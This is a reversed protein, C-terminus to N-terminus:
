SCDLLLFTLCRCINTPNPSKTLRPFRLSCTSQFWLKNWKGMRNDSNILSYRLTRLLILGQIKFMNTEM